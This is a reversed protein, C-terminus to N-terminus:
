CTMCANSLDDVLSVIWSYKSMSFILIIFIKWKTKNRPPKTKEEPRKSTERFVMRCVSSTVLARIAACGTTWISNWTNTRSWNKSDVWNIDNATNEIIRSLSSWDTTAEIEFRTPFMECHRLRASLRACMPTFHLLASASVHERVRKRFRERM